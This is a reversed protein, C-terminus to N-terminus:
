LKTCSNLPDQSIVTVADHISHFVKEPTLSKLTGCRELSEIVNETVSALVLTIGAEKYDNYLQKIVKGGTSDMYSVASMDIILWQVDPVNLAVQKNPRLTHIKSKILKAVGNFQKETITDGSPVTLNLDGNSQNSLDPESASQQRFVRNAIIVSPTLGSVSFLSQRFYESNAFHLPGTFQFIFISPVEVAVSYKHIDLYLDTNPVRGLRAINPKQSRFLLVLLSMIVGLMLGFDIDIIVVGLFSVIWISADIRSEKWINKLENFQLFMGKLAVVIISSLVCNPLTEFVPGIFLLVFVLIVCSILSTIQTVGGVAEQILSRSLSASIPACGFFSGFVNSIGQSYLEQTADVPYNHKKAFIKTMSFSVTYSVITIVFSDVVVRPLLEIPPATPEPLGTPIDGVIRIDYNGQLNGFYSAATGAIVALLEIPIPIMTKKRVCPKLVENNFVLVGITIGSVVMAAPNSTLLQSIIDRYTYIIKLPGNYRPVKIGFLYKVQSTLVHVAAGTTFGSVLMDSLFVCLVGLQLMGLVVEWIGVMLTVVAAVQNPTYIPKNITMNGEMMTHNGIAKLTSEDTALESIVKGTMLCIVAFTGMSCHRSTGLFVYVLVPFFAMYIGTIPPLGALLAYAMGQPIHMIAVTVGAIADGLLDRKLSYTPLWTLIPLRGAIASKVCNGSCRCSGVIKNKASEFLGPDPGKDYHYNVCRQTVNLAPRVVCVENPATNPMSSAPPDSGGMGSLVATYPEAESVLLNEEVEEDSGEQSTMKIYPYKRFRWAYHKDM